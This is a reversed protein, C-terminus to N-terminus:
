EGLQREQIMLKLCDLVAAISPREGPEIAWCSTLLLSYDEPMLPPLPPRSNRLVVHEFFQGALVCCVHLSWCCMVTTREDVVAGFVACGMFLVLWQL